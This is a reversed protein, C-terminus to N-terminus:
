LRVVASGARLANGTLRCDVELTQHMVGDRYRECRRALEGHSGADVIRGGDMVFIRDAKMITRLRHAICIVTVGAQVMGKLSKEWLAESEADMASSPEDLLLLRPRRVLARAICLRQKQGGSLLQSGTPGCATDYGQPLRSITEDINALRAAEKMEATSVTRTGRGGLSINFGVSGSFLTADQPVLAVDDWISLAEDDDFDDNGKDKDQRTIDCGDLKIIGTDPRYIRQILSLITSKGAGSAGVLAVFAGAAIDLSVDRLANQEPRNPYSFWVGQLSVSMGVDRRTSGLWQRQRRRSGGMARKEVDMVKKEDRLNNPSILGFVRRGAVAAKSIDPSLSFMQGSLQAASLLSVLTIFLSTQTIERQAILRGGWYFALAKVLSGISFAAALWVTGFTISRLTAKYPGELARDFSNTVEDQLAFASVTRIHNVSETATSVSEAFAKAHREAFKAYLRIRLFGACFILPVCATLVVAVKWAVVHALVIGAVLTVLVSVCAGLITGTLGSMAAADASLLSMLNGPTRGDSEHWRVRRELLSQLTLSRLQHILQESVWGFCVVSVAHAFFEVLALIFYLLGYLSGSQRVQSATRCVSLHGVGNGFIVADGAHSGGIIVSCLFGVVVVLLQPRIMEVVLKLTVWYSKEAEAGDSPPGLDSRVPLKGDNAASLTESAVDDRKQSDDSPRTMTKESDEDDCDSLGAEHGPIAQSRVMSAFVGGGNMLEEYNGQEVIRGGPGTVFISHADRVTSLRHAICLITRKGPLNAITDQIQAETASDLAATAEDLILIAPNRILARALAIRQRQGGSLRSGAPGVSTALGSPFSDLFGDCGAQTAATQVLSLIRSLTSSRAALRDLDGGLRVAETLDSLDGNILSLRVSQHESWYSGVLGHAINEMISRDFLMPNQEVYGVHGRLSHINVNRVDHGDVTVTGEQPDYFRQVLSAVTSKGSGSLGVIATTEGAHISMNFNDLILTGPRSPYRFSVNKLDVRGEIAPILLGPADPSADIAPKREITTLIQAAAQSAAGFMNLFPAVQSLIYSADILTVMVTYVAGATVSTDGMEKADAIHRAGQSFALANASYAIFHLLGMQTAATALKAIAPRRAADLHDQFTTQIRKGAHLAKVLRINALSESALANAPELNKEVANRYKGSLHTGIFTMFFFAPVLSILMAALKADKVFSVSYAAIFYSVSQIVIGVKESVGTQITLLDSDLRAAVDGASLSEFFSIDQRLLIRLYNYRLRRVLREGFLSWAGASVYISVFNAVAVCVTLLVKTSLSQYYSESVPGESCSATNVQDLLEGFVIFMVPFPLGALISGFTAVFLLVYDLPLPDAATLLRFFGVVVALSRKSTRGPSAM